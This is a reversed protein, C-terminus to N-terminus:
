NYVEYKFIIVDIFNIFSHLVYKQKIEISLLVWNHCLIFFYMMSIIFILNYHYSTYGVKDLYIDIVNENKEPKEEPMCFLAGRSTRKLMLRNEESENEVQTAEYEYKSENKELLDAENKLM